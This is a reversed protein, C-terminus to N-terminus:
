IPAAAIAGALEGAPVPRALHYGSAQDCGLERLAALQEPTEVGEALAIAGVAHALDIVAAVIARGTGSHLDAVFARDLKLVDVPYQRLRSVSSYGTGFDDVAIPVGAESLLVLERLAVLNDDALASETVEVGIRAIPTGADALLGLFHKAFGARSLQRVSVNVWVPLGAVRGRWAVRDRATAPLVWDGLTGVLGTDEALDIFAGATLLGREPHAWRLLAEAGTAAGTGLDFAPQYHLLLEDAPIAARLDHEMQLRTVVGTRVDEDFRAVQDRGRDKALYLAADADRLLTAATAGHEALAIGISTSVVLRRGAVEIPTRFADLVRVAVADAEKASASSLAIVFEDGGVRAVLDGPRLDDILRQAVAVLMEDGAAHGLSDNVVKFRDVDCFLVAVEGGRCPRELAQTLWAELEVRNPLGTLHDHTAAHALEARAAQEAVLLAEREAQETRRPTIDRFHVAIGDIQPHVRYEYWRDHPPYYTEFECYRGSMGLEFQAEIETGVAEPFAEKANLGLLHHRPVGIMEEAWRNIYTFNWDRDIAYYGDSISELTAVVRDFAAHSETVDLAVGMMRVPGEADREVVRGRALLRRETGDPCRVRYNGQIEDDDRGLGALRVDASVRDDPLMLGHWLEISAPVDPGVGLLERMREDWISEGTRIDVEWAGAGALDAAMRLRTEREAAVREAARRETVDHVVLVMQSVGDDVAGFPTLEIEVSLTRGDAHRVDLEERVRRGAALQSALVGMRDPDDGALLSRAPRGVLAALRLGALECAAENAYVITPGQGDLRGDCLVVADPSRVVVSEVLGVQSRRTAETPVAGTLYGEPAGDAGELRVAFTDLDVFGGSACRFRVHGHWRGAVHLREEAEAPSEAATRVDLFDVPERGLVDAADWGLRDACEPSWWCYRGDVELLAVAVGADAMARLLASRGAALPQLDATVPPM